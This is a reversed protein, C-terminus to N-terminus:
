QFFMCDNISYEYAVLTREENNIIKKYPRAHLEGVSSIKTGVPKTAFIEALKGWSISPIYATGHKSYNNAIVCDCITKGKPTKRSQKIKCITGGLHVECRDFETTLETLEADKCFIIIKLHSKGDKIFSYTRIEGRILVRPTRTNSRNVLYDFLDAPMTLAFEEREYVKNSYRYTIISTDVYETGSAQNIFTSVNDALEGVIEIYNRDLIKNNM